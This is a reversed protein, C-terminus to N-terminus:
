TMLHTEAHVGAKTEPWLEFEASSAENVNVELTSNCFSLWFIIDCRTNSQRYEVLTSGLSMSLKM